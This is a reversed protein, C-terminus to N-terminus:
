QGRLLADRLQIVYADSPHKGLEANLREVRRRQEAVRAELARQKAAEEGNGLRSSRPLLRDYWRHRSSM